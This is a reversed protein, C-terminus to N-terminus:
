SASALRAAPAAYGAARLAARLGRRDPGCVFLLETNRLHSVRGVREGAPNHIGIRAGVYRATDVEVSGVHGRSRLIEEVEAPAHFGEDSFSVVLWRAPVREVLDALAARAQSRRNYASPRTRCDVRKCAVGYHDPRDGRVITEWVHYNGLYSHQNYPPDLYALDVPALTRALANADTRV